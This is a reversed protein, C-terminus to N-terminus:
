LYNEQTRGLREVSLVPRLSRARWGSPLSRWGSDDILITIQDRNPEGSVALAMQSAETGMRSCSGMRLYGSAAM